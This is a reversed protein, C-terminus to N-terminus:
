RTADDHLHSPLMSPLAALLTPIVFHVDPIFHALCSFSAQPRAKRALSPRHSFQSPLRTQNAPLLLSASLTASATKGRPAAPWDVIVDRRLQRDAQAVFVISARKAVSQCRCASLELEGPLGGKLAEAGMRGM